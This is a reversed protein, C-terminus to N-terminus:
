AAPRVVYLHYVTTVKGTDTVEIKIDTITDAAGIVINGSQVASTLNWEVGLATVKISAATADTITLNVFADGTAVTCGYTYVAAELDPSLAIAGSTAAISLATIDASATIALVPKGTIKLTASFRQADDMPFDSPKFRTVLATFTWTATVSTPFTLVFTQVTKALLDTQLGIQGSTDGAIFNGEIQVEGGDLLGGIFERFDNASDHSTVDITELSMEPGTINTIEAIANGDRTLAIGLASKAATTM